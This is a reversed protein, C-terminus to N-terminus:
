CANLNNLHYKSIGQLQEITQKNAINNAQETSTALIAEFLKTVSAEPKTLKM